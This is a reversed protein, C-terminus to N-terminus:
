ALRVRGSALQAVFERDGDLFDVSPLDALPLWAIAAFVRNAIVREYQPILFFTLEIPNRNPYQHHTEWLVPGVTAEIDLEEALERRMCAALDEGPELKGGPFEWKDPHHGGPPRQCVLVRGGRAIVGATVHILEEVTARRNM